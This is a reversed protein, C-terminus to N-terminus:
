VGDYGERWVDLDVNVEFFIFVLIIRVRARLFMDVIEIVERGGRADPDEEMADSWMNKRRIASSALPHLAEITITTPRPRPIPVASPHM